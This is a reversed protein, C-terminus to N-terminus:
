ARTLCGGRSHGIIIIQQLYATSVKTSLWNVLGKIIKDKNFSYYDSQHDSFSVAFTNGANINDGPGSYAGSLRRPPLSKHAVAGIMVRPMGTIRSDRSMAPVEGASAM